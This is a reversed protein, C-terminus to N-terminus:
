VLHGAAFFALGLALMDSQSRPVNFIALVFCLLALGVLVRNFWLRNETM